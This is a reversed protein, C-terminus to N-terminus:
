RTEWFFQNELMLNVSTRVQGPRAPVWPCNKVQTPCLFLKHKRKQDGGFLRFWSQSPVIPHWQKVSALIISKRKWWKHLYMQFAWFAMNLTMSGYVIRPQECMIDALYPRKLTSGGECDEDKPEEGRWWGKDANARGGRLYQYLRYEFNFIGM